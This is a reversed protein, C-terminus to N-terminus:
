PNIIPVGCDLFETVNRTALAAGRSAAVAAIKRM